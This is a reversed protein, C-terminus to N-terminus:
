LIVERTMSIAENFLIMNQVSAGEFNTQCIPIDEEYLLNHFVWPV